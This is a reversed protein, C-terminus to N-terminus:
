RVTSSEPDFKSYAKSEQEDENQPQTDDSCRIYSPTIPSSKAVQHCLALHPAFSSIRLPRCRLSCKCLVFHNVIATAPPAANLSAFAFSPLNHKRRNM